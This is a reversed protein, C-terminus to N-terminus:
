FVLEFRVLAVFADRRQWQGGPHHIFQFDPQISFWPTARFRYYLEGTSEPEPIISDLRDNPHIRSYMLGMSDLPRQRWFGGLRVGILFQHLLASVTPDGVTYSVFADLQTQKNASLLGAEIAGYVGQGGNTTNGNLDSYTGDQAWGGFFARFHRDMLRKQFDLEVIAMSDEIGVNRLLDRRPRQGPQIGGLDSTDYLGFRLRFHQLAELTLEIGPASQPYAPMDFITPTLGVSANMFEQGGEIRDFTANSDLLGLRTTLWEFHMRQTWFAEHIRTEEPADMNSVVGLDGIDFSAPRGAKNYAHLQFQAGRWGLLPEPDFSIVLDLRHQWTDREKLGGVIPYSGDVLLVLELDLGTRSLTDRIGGWSGTLRNQDFFGLDTNEADELELQAPLGVSLLMLM